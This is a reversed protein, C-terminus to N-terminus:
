CNWRRDESELYDELQKVSNVCLACGESEEIAKIVLTQRPSPECKVTLSKCEVGVFYGKWCVLFDLTSAGYGTQVPMFYYAGISDLYKKVDDKVKAEGTKMLPNGEEDRLGLAIEKDVILKSPPYDIEALGMCGWCDGGCDRSLPDNPNNLIRKCITCYNM